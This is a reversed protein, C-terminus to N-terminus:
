SREVFRIKKPEQIQMVEGEPKMVIVGSRLAHIDADKELRIGAIAGMLKFCKYQELFFLFKKM